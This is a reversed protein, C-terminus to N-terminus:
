VAAAAAAQSYLVSMCFSVGCINQVMLHWVVTGQVMAVASTCSLHRTGGAEGEEGGVGGVWGWAGGRGPTM